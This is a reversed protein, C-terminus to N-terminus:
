EYCYFKKSIDPLILHTFFPECSSWQRRWCSNRLPRVAVAFIIIENAIKNTRFMFYCILLCYPVFEIEKRSDHVYMIILFDM